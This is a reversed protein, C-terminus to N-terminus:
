WNKRIENFDIKKGIKKWIILTVIGELVTFVSYLIIAQMASEDSVVYTYHSLPPNEFVGMSYSALFDYLGHVILINCQTNCRHVVHSFGGKQM